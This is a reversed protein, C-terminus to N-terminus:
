VAALSRVPNELAEKGCSMVVDHVLTLGREVLLMDEGSIWSSPFQSTPM